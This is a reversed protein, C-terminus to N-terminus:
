AEFLGGGSSELAHASDQHIRENELEETLIRVIDEVIARQDSPSLHNWVNQSTNPQM